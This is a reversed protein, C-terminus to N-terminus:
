SFRKPSAPGCRAPPPTPQKTRWPSRPTSFPTRTRIVAGTRTTALAVSRGVFVIRTCSRHRCLGFHFSSGVVACQSAQSRVLKPLGSAELNINIHFETKIPSQAAFYRVTNLRSMKDLSLPCCSNHVLKVSHGPPHRFMITQHEYSM